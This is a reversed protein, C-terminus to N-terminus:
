NQLEYINWKKLTLNAVLSRDRARNVRPNVRAIFAVERVITMGGLKDKKLGAIPSRNRATSAPSM